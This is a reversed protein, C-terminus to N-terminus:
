HKTLKIGRPQAQLTPVAEDHGRPFRTEQSTPVIIDVHMGQRELERLVGVHTLARASGGSLALSVKFRGQSM